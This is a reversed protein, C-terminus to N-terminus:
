CNSRFEIMMIYGM